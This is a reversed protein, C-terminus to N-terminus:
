LYSQTKKMLKKEQVIYVNAGNQVSSFHPSIIEKCKLCQSKWPKHVSPYEELPETKAARMIKATENFSLKKTM